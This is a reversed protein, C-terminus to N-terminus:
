NGRIVRVSAVLALNRLSNAEAIAKDSTGNVEVWDKGGTGKYIVLLYWM